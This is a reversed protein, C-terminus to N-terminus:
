IIRICCFIIVTIGDIPILGLYGEYDSVRKWSYPNLTNLPNSSFKKHDDLLKGARHEKMVEDIMEPIEPTVYTEGCRKETHARWRSRWLTSGRERAGAPTPVCARTHACARAPPLLDSPRSQWWHRELQSRLHTIEECICKYIPALM